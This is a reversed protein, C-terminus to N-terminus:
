LGESGVGSTPRAVRRREEVGPPLVRRNRGSRDSSRAGVELLGAADALATRERRAAVRARIVWADLEEAGSVEVVARGSREVRLRGAERLLRWLVAVDGLTCSEGALRHLDRVGTVVFSTPSRM